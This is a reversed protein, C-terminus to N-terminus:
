KFKYAFGVGMLQLIQPAPGKTADVNQIDDDYILDVNLSFNIFKTIKATYVNSWFIDINQPNSKYNSFLDLKSKFNMNKGIGKNLNISSFAGFEQRSSKNLPVNYIPKLFDTGVVIWRATAPSVYISLYSTPKYDLGESLLIYAPQLTKSTVTASDKGNVDKNYALGDAFQSRFNFLTSLALKPKLQYGYKSLLDIRDSAKRTGLSTTSVVGYALDLNNDWSNKDKKFLAYMNLYSNLSFSFKDGGASWNTLSGQNLNTAFNGGTKWIKTTTDKDDKKIEKIADAKLAKVSPDQAKLMGLPLIYIFLLYFKKM